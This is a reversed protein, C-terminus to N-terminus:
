SSRVAFNLWFCGVSYNNHFVRPSNSQFHVKQGVIFYTGPLSSIHFIHGVNKLYRDRREWVKQGIM